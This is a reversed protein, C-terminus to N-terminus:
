LETGSGDKPALPKLWRRSAAVMVMGIEPKPLYATFHVLVTVFRGRGLPCRRSLRQLNM